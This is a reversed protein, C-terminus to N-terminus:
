EDNESDSIDVQVAYPTHEYYAQVASESLVTQDPRNDVENLGCQLMIFMTLHMLMCGIYLITAYTQFWCHSASFGYLSLVFYMILCVIMVMIRYYTFKKWFAWCCIQVFLSFFPFFFIPLLVYFVISGVVGHEWSVKINHNTTNTHTCTQIFSGVSVYVLLNGLGLLGLVCVLQKSM